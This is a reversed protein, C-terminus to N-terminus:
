DKSINYIPFYSQGDTASEFVVAAIEIICLYDLAQLSWPGRIRACITRELRAHFRPSDEVDECCDM